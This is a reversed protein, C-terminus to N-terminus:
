ITTVVPNQALNVIKSLNKKVKGRPLHMRDDIANITEDPTATTQPAPSTRNEKAMRPTTRHTDM